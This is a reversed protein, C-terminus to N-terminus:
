VQIRAVKADEEGVFNVLYQISPELLRRHEAVIEQLDGLYIVSRFPEPTAFIRVLSIEGAAGTTAFQQIAFDCGKTQLLRGARDGPGRGVTAIDIFNLGSL